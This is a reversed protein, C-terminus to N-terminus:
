HVHESRCCAPLNKYAEPDAKVDDADYGAMSISAKIEDITIKTPNYKVTITQDNLSVDVSQIGKKYQLAKNINAQCTACVASTTLTDETIKIDTTQKTSGCAFSFLVLIFFSIQIKM